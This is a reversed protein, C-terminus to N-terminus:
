RQVVIYREFHNRELISLKDSASIKKLYGLLGDFDKIHESEYALVFESEPVHEKVFPPLIDYKSYLTFPTPADYKRMGSPLLSTSFEVQLVEYPETVGLDYLQRELMAGEMAFFLAENLLTTKEYHRKESSVSLRNDKLFTGDKFKVTFKYKMFM